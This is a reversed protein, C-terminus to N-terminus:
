KQQQLLTFCQGGSMSKRTLRPMCKALTSMVFSLILIIFVQPMSIGASQWISRWFKGWSCNRPGPLFVPIASIAAHLMSPRYRSIFVLKGLFCCLIHPFFGSSQILRTYAAISAYTEKSNYRRIVASGCYIM